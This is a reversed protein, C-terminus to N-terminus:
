YRLYIGEYKEGKLFLDTFRNAFEELEELTGNNYIYSDYKYNFIDADAHNSQPLEEVNFRRVILTRAGIRDVFKQIEKPERCMIFYLCEEEDYGFQKWIEKCGEYSGIIDKYPIDDWQTLIDKLDSLFKRDKPTKQGNWGCFKAVEKVFDVTSIIRCSYPGVREEMIKQVMECYTDKGARPAGNVVIIM